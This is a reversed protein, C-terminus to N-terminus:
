IELVKIDTLSLRWFIMMLVSRYPLFRKSLYILYQDHYPVWDRKSSPREFKGKKKMLKQLVGSDDKGLDRKIEQKIEELIQPRKSLYYSAGRAIGLDLESFVDWEDLTFVAFMEASWVGVGKLKCLEQIVISSENKYFDIQSLPCQPDSFKESIDYVYKVKMGSLGIERLQETLKTLLERPNPKGTFLKVFRSYIAAAAGGSIQQATINSILSLWYGRIIEEDDIQAMPTKTCFKLFNESVILNYLGPDITLIHQIGKIFRSDHYNVFDLPLELQSNISEHINVDIISKLGTKPSSKTKTIKVTKSIKNISKKVAKNLPKDIAKVQM